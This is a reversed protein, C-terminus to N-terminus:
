QKSIKKNIDLREIYYPPMEYCEVKKIYQNDALKMFVDLSLKTDDKFIVKNIHEWTNVLDLVLSETEKDNIVCTNIDKKIIIVNLFNSVLEFNEVIYDNSFKLDKVQIVNTNNLSKYDVDRKIKNITIIDKSIKFELNYSM